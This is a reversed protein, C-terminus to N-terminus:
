IQNGPNRPESSFFRTLQEIFRMLILETSVTQEKFVLKAAHQLINSNNSSDVREHFDFRKPPPAGAQEPQVTDPEEDGEPTQALYTKIDGALQVLEMEVM